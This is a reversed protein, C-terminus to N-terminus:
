CKKLDTLLTPERLALLLLLKTTEKLFKNVTKRDKLVELTGSLNSHEGHVIRSRYGYLKNWVKEEKIEGFHGVYDLNRQFRKSLLPIKTKIQHTLSDESHKPSHTVLSEIISFLGITVLESSRPLSRLDRFKRFARTIHEHDPSIKKVIDYNERIERLEDENVSVPPQGMARNEFFSFMSAPHGGFGEGCTLSSKGLVYFGLELDNRLLSAASAIHGLETNSGKFSIVWYRWRDEMLPELQFGSSSSTKSFNVEYPQLNLIASHGFPTYLKLLNKIRVTQESNAREFFHDPAVEIPLEGKVDINNLVFVFSKQLQSYPVSDNSKMVNEVCSYDTM